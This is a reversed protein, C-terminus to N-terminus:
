PGLLVTSPTMRTPPPNAPSLGRVAEHEVSVFGAGNPYLHGVLKKGTRDWVEVIGRQLNPKSRLSDPTKFIDSRHAYGVVKMQGDTVSILDPVARMDTTGDAREANSPIRGYTLAPTPEPRTAAYALGGLGLVFGLIVLFTAGSVGRRRRDM